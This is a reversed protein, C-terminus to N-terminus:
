PLEDARRRITELVQFATKLDEEAVGDLLEARLTAAVADIQRITERARALLYVRKSRRDQSCDRREIWGDAALRDLLRVLTPGEIGLRLALDKQTIGEGARYVALIARWKAQSLGLPRLRQDLKLRWVRAADFLLIGFTDVYRRDSM